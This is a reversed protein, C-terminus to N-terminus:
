KKSRYGHIVWGIGLAVLIPGIGICLYLVPDNVWPKFYLAAGVLWVMALFIVLRIQWPILLSAPYIKRPPNIKNRKAILGPLFIVAAGIVVILAIENFGSFM